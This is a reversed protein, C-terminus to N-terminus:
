ISEGGITNKFGIKGLYSRVGSGDTSISKQECWTIVPCFCEKGEHKVKHFRIFVPSAWRGENGAFGLEPINSSGHVRTLMVDRDPSIKSMDSCVAVQGISKLIFYDAKSSKDQKLICGPSSVGEETLFDVFTRCAQKLGTKLHEELKGTGEFPADNICTAGFAETAGNGQCIVPSGFGRRARKGVAGLNAWVWIVCRLAGLSTEGMGVRPIITISFRSGEKYCSFPVMGNYGLFLKSFQIRSTDNKLHQQTCEVELNFKKVGTSGFVAEELEKLKKVDIGPCLGGALARFWFRWAGRLAKGTLGVPDLKKADEGGIILPTIFKVNFKLM